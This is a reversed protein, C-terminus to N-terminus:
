MLAVRYHRLTTNIKRGKSDASHACALYCNSYAFCPQPSGRCTVRKNLCRGDIAGVVRDRLVWEKASLRGSLQLSRL